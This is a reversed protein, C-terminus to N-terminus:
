QNREFICLSANLNTKIKNQKIGERSRGGLITRSPVRDLLPTSGCMHVLVELQSDFRTHIMITVLRGESTGPYRTMELSSVHRDERGSHRV